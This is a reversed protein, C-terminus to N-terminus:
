KESARFVYSFIVVKGGRNTLGYILPLTIAHLVFWKSLMKNEEKM